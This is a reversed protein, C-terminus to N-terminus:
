LPTTAEPRATAKARAKREEGQGRGKERSKRKATKGKATKGNLIQGHGEGGGLDDREDDGGAEGGSQINVCRNRGEAEESSEMGDRKWGAKQEELVPANDYDGRGKEDEFEEGVLNGIEIEEPVGDMREDPYRNSRKEGVGGAALERGLPVEGADSESGADREGRMASLGREAGAHSGRGFRKRIDREASGFIYERDEQGPKCGFMREDSGREREDQDRQENEGDAPDPAHEAGDNSAKAM